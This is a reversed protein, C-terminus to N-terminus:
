SRGLRWLSGLRKSLLLMWTYLLLTVPHRQSFVASRYVMRKQLRSGRQERSRLAIEKRGHNIYENYM